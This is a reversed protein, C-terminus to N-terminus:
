CGLIMLREIDRHGINEAKAIDYMLKLYRKTPKGKYYKKFHKSYLESYLNDSKFYCGCVKEMQRWKKSQTQKSYMGSPLASRHIFKEDILHLKRCRKGTYPCLFCWVKGKGLNSPLATLQIDYNYKTDNCKYDLTLVNNNGSMLLSVSISGTNAGRCTWNITGSTTNNKNFYRLKKFDSISICKAEDFLYPFTTFKPM